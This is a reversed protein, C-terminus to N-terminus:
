AESFGSLSCIYFSNSFCLVATVTVLYLFHGPFFYSFQYSSTDSVLSPFFSPSTLFVVSLLFSFWEDMWLTDHELKTGCATLACVIYLCVFHASEHFKCDVQTTECRPCPLRLATTLDFNLNRTQLFLHLILFVLGWNYASIKLLMVISFPSPTSLEPIVWWLCDKIKFIIILM